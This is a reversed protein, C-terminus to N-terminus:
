GWAKKLNAGANASGNITALTQNLNQLWGSKGAEVASNIDNQQQGMAELQGKVDEGHLGQLGAAGLQNEQKAGMIDQAAIGESAGANVKAQNRAVEDLAKTFGSPNRTRAAQLEAEGKLSGTTGGSGAEAATLMEGTQEPSFYHQAHLENNYFPSLTDHETDAYGGLKGAVEGANAANEKSAAVGARDLREVPGEYGDSFVHEEVRGTEIDWVIRKTVRM